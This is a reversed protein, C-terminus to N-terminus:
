QAAQVPIFVQARKDNYVLRSGRIVRGVHEAVDRPLGGTATLDGNYYETTVIMDPPRGSYYGLTRDHLMPPEFKLGFGFEPQIYVVKMAPTIHSKVFEVAKAYERHYPDARIRSAHLAVQVCGCGLVLVLAAIRRRRQEVAWLAWAVLVANLVPIVHILYYVRKQGDLLGLWLANIGGALLLPGLGARARFRRNTCWAVLGALYAFLIVAKLAAVPNQRVADLGFAEGYRLTVERYLAKLPSAIYNVRGAATANYSFQRAFDAPDQLIYAGWAAAALLFPLMATMALRWSWRKRDLWITLVLLDIAYLIGNPHSMGSLAILTASCLVAMEFREARLMLYVALASFGLAACEMDMRGSAGAVVFTSDLALALVFWVSRRGYTGRFLFGWAVLLGAGFAASLWRTSFLGVGFIRYWEALLVFHLPPMYYTHRLIGPSTASIPDTIRSGLYGEQALTVSPDAFMGEDSTPLLTYICGAALLFYAAIAWFLTARSIGVPPHQSSNSVADMAAQM